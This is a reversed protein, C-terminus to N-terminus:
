ITMKSATKNVGPVTWRLATIIVLRIWDSKPSLVITDGQVDMDVPKVLNVLHVVHLCLLSYIYIYIYIYLYIYISLNFCIVLFLLLHACMSRVYLCLVHDFRRLIM